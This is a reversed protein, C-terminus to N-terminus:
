QNYMADAKQRNAKQIEEKKNWKSFCDNCKHLPMQTFFTYEKGCDPCKRKEMLKM